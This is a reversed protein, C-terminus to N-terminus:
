GRTKKTPVCITYPNTFSYRYGAETYISKGQSIVMLLEHNIFLYLGYFVMYGIILLLGPLWCNNMLVAICSVIMAM